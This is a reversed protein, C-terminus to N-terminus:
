ETEEAAAEGGAPSGAGCAFVPACLGSLFMAVFLLMLVSKM